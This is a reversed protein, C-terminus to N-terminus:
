FFRKRFTFITEYPLFAQCSLGSTNIYSELREYRAKYAHAHAGGQCVALSTLPPLINQVCDDFVSVLLVLNGLAVNDAYLLQICFDACSDLEFCNQNRCVVPDLDACVYRIRFDACLDFRLILELLDDHELVLRLLVLAFLLAMALGEGRDLDFLDRQLAFADAACYHPM